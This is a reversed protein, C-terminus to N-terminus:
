PTVGEILTRLARRLVWFFAAVVAIGVVWATLGFSEALSRGAALWAADLLEPWGNFPLGLFAAYASYVADVASGLLGFTLELVGAVLAGLRLWFSVVLTRALTRWQVGNEGIFDDTTARTGSM